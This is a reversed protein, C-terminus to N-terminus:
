RQGKLLIKKSILDVIDVVNRLTAIEILQFKLEFEREIEAILNVHNLSDWNDIDELNTSNEIRLNEDDFIDIFISRVKELVQEKSM